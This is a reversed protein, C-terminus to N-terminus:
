VSCENIRKLCQTKGPHREKYLWIGHRQFQGGGVFIACDAQTAITQQLLAVYGSDITQSTDEFTKEWETLSLSDNYLGRFFERFGSQIAEFVKENGRDLNQVRLSVRWIETIREVSQFEQCGYKGIDIALFITDIGTDKSMAESVKITLELCHQMIEIIGDPTRAGKYTILKGMRANIAIFKGGKLYKEHYREAEQRLKLSPRIYQHLESDCAGLVARPCCPVGKVRIRLQPDTGRWRNIIVTTESADHEGFIHSNFQQLTLADGYEFNICVERVVKFNNSTLFAYINAKEWGEETCGTMYREPLRPYKSPDNRAKKPLDWDWNPSLDERIQVLIVDSPAHEIFDEWLVLEAYKKKRYHEQWFPLDFLDRFRHHGSRNMFLPFQPRSEIVFPEVVALNLLGAWCQLNQVSAIGGAQQEYFDAALAYGRGMTHQTHDHEAASGTTIFPTQIDNKSFWSIYLLIALLLVSSITALLYLKNHQTM